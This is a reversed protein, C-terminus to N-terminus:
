KNQGKGVGLLSGQASHCEIDKIVPTFKMCFVISKKSVKICCRIGTNQFACEYVGVDCQLLLLNTPQGSVNTHTHLMNPHSHAFYMFENRGWLNRRRTVIAKTTVPWRFLFGRNKSELTGGLLEIFRYPAFTQPMKNTQKPFRRCTYM